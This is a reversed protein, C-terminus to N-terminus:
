SVWVMKAIQGSLAITDAATEPVAVFLPGELPGRGAVRLSVGPVIGADALYRLGDPHEDSVREVVVIDGESADWLTRGPSSPM